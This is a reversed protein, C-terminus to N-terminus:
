PHNWFTIRFMKLLRFNAVKQEKKRFLVQGGGRLFTNLELKRLWGMQNSVYNSKISIVPRM